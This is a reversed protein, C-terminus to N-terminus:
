FVAALITLRDLFCSCMVGTRMSSCQSGTCYRTWNLISTCVYLATWPSPGMYRLSSTVRYRGDRVSRESLPISRSTGRVRVFVNPSRRNSLDAGVKHFPKGTLRLSEFVNSMKLDFRLVCRKLCAKLTYNDM